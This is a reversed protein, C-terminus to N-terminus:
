AVRVSALPPREVPAGGVAHMRGDQELRRAITALV